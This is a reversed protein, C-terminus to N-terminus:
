QTVPKPANDKIVQIAAHFQYASLGGADHVGRMALGAVIKAFNRRAAEVTNNTDSFDFNAPKMQSALWKNVEEMAEDVEAEYLASNLQLRARKILNIFFEVEETDPFLTPFAVMLENNFKKKLEDAVERAQNDSMWISLLHHVEMMEDETNSAVRQGNVSYVVDALARAKTNIHEFLLYLGLRSNYRERMTNELSGSSIAVDIAAMREDWDTLTSGIGADQSLHINFENLRRMPLEGITEYFEVEFAVEQPQEPNFLQGPEVYSYKKV